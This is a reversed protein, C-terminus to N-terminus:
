LPSVHLVAIFSASVYNCHLLEKKGNETLQVCLQLIGNNM